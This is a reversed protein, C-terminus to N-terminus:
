RKEKSEKYLKLTEGLRKSFNPKVDYIEGCKCEVSFSYNEIRNELIAFLSEGCKSCCCVGKDTKPMRNARLEPNYRKKNRSIEICGYNGCTCCFLMMMFDYGLANISGVIKECNDCYMLGGNPSLLRVGVINKFTTRKTKRGM